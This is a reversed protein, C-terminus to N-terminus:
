AVLIAGGGNLSPIPTLEKVLSGTLTTLLFDDPREAAASSSYIGSPMTKGNISLERVKIAIGSQVHIRGPEYVSLKTGSPLAGKSNLFLTGRRVDVPGIFSNEGSLEVDIYGDLNLSARPADKYSGIPGSFVIKSVSPLDPIAYKVESFPITPMAWNPGWLKKCSHLIMMPVHHTAANGEPLVINALQQGTSFFLISDESKGEPRITYSTTQANFWINALVIHTRAVIDVKSVAMESFIATAEPQNPWEGEAWNNPDDWYMPGEDQGIWNYTKPLAEIQLTKPLDIQM